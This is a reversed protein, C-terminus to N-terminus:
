KQINEHANKPSSPSVNSTQIFVIFNTFIVNLVLSFVSFQQTSFIKDKCTGYIIQNLKFYYNTSINRTLHQSHACQTHDYPKTSMIPKGGAPAPLRQTEAVPADDLQRRRRRRAPTAVITASCLARMEGRFRQTQTQEAEEHERDDDTKTQVDTVLLPVFVLNVESLQDVFIIEAAFYSIEQNNVFSITEDGHYSQTILSARGLTPATM